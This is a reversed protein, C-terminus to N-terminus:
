KSFYNDLAVLIAMGSFLLFMALNPTYIEDCFTLATAVSTVVEGYILSIHIVNKVKNFHNVKELAVDLPMNQVVKIFDSQQTIFDDLNKLDEDSISAKAWDAFAAQLEKLLILYESSLPPASPINKLMTERLSVFSLMAKEQEQMASQFLTAAKNWDEASLFGSM